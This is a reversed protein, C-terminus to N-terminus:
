QRRDDQPVKIPFELHYVNGFTSPTFTVTGNMKTILSYVVYHSIAQDGADKADTSSPEWLRAYSTVSDGNDEIEVVVVDGKRAARIEVRGSYLAGKSNEYNVKREARTFAMAILSKMVKRLSEVDVNLKLGGLRQAIDVSTGDRCVESLIDYANVDQPRLELRNNEIKDKTLVEDALMERQASIKELANARHNAYQAYEREMRALRKNSISSRYFFYALSLSLAVVLLSIIAFSNQLGMTVQVTRNIEKMDRHRQRVNFEYVIPEIESLRRLMLEAEITDVGDESDMFISTVVKGIDTIARASWADDKVADAFLSPEEFVVMRSQFVTIRTIVDDESVDKTALSTFRALAGRTREMEIALQSSAWGFGEYAGSTLPSESKWGAYSKYFLLGAGVTLLMLLAILAVVIRNQTSISTGDRKSAM